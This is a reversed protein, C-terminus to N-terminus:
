YQKIKDGGELINEIKHISKKINKMKKVFYSNNACVFLGIEVKKCRLEINNLLFGATKNRLMTNVLEDEVGKKNFYLFEWELFQLNDFKLELIFEKAKCSSIFATIRKIDSFYGTILGLINKKLNNEFFQFGLITENNRGLNLGFMCPIIYKANSFKSLIETMNINFNTITSETKHLSQLTFHKEIKMFINLLIKKNHLNLKIEFILAFSLSNFKKLHEIKKLIDSSSFESINVQNNIKMIKSFDVCNEALKKPNKFLSWPFSHELKIKITKDTTLNTYLSLSNELDSNEQLIKTYIIEDWSDLIRNTTTILEDGSIYTFLYKLIEIKILDFEIFYSEKTKQIQLNPIINFSKEKAPFRSFDIKLTKEYESKIENSYSIPKKQM